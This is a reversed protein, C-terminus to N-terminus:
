EEVTWTEAKGGWAENLAWNRREIFVPDQILEAIKAGHAQCCADHLGMLQPDKEFHEAHWAKARALQADYNTTNESQKNRLRWYTRSVSKGMVVVDGRYMKALYSDLSRLPFHELRVLDFTGRADHGNESRDKLFHNTERGSGDLWRVKGMTNVLDPRHNRLKEVRPSLRTISKVGRRARSKGPTTTQHRHFLDTLWGPQFHEHNNSGHNVESVSIVDFEGTAAFLASLSHDGPRINLFEDVDMSIFFDAERMQPLHHTYNLAIPQFATSGQMPAPNPLHRLYGLQDLRDLLLDTGDSCDNTFVTIDTVGLARHWAVWELIFPGEDKMCTAVFIKPAEIPWARYSRRPLSPKYPDLPAADLTGDDKQLVLKKAKRETPNEAAVSELVAPANGTLEPMASGDKIGLDLTKGLPLNTLEAKAKHAKTSAISQVSFRVLWPAVGSDSLPQDPVFGNDALIKLMKAAQPSNAAARLKVLLVRTGSLSLKGLHQAERPSIELYLVEPQADAVLAAIADLKKDAGDLLRLDAEAENLRLTEAAIALTSEVGELAIVHKAQRGALVALLGLGTGVMLVRDSSRLDKAMLKAEARMYRGNRIPKEIRPPMNEPCFPIKVGSSTIVEQYDLM